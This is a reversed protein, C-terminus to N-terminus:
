ILGLLDVSVDPLMVPAMRSLTTVMHVHGYGDPCPLRHIFFQGNQIDILWAEPIGSHGYRRIDSEHRATVGEAVQVVLLVDSARPPAHSYFDLRPKLLAFEATIEHGEDLMLTNHMAVIAKTGVALKIVNAIRNLAGAHGSRNSTM